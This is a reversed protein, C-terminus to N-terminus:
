REYSIVTTKMIGSNWDLSEEEKTVQRLETQSENDHQGPMRKGMRPGVRALVRNKIQSRESDSRSGASIHTTVGYRSLGLMEAFEDSFVNCESNNLSQKSEESPRDDGDINADFRKRAFVFFSKFMPRLTAIAAATIAIAPEVMSWKVLNIGFWTYDATLELQRIYVIRVITASSASLIPGILM